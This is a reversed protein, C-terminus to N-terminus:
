GCLAMELGRKCDGGVYLIIQASKTRAAHFCFDDDRRLFGHEVRLAFGDLVGEFVHTVLADAGDVDAFVQFDFDGAVLFRQAFLDVLGAVFEEAVRDDLIVPQLNFSCKECPM